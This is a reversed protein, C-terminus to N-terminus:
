LYAFFYIFRAGGEYGRLPELQAPDFKDDWGCDLLIRNEDIELVYALPAEDLAGSLVTVRIDAM